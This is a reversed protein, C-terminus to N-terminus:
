KVKQRLSYLWYWFRRLPIDFSGPYEVPRGGFGHKFRTVGPWRVSDVGWLDYNKIGHEKLYKIISWHLLHPAMFQRFENDSAGHLYYGTDGNILVIAGAVPKDKYYALVLDTKLPEKLDLLKKYYEKEHSQFKDRQTTKRLLKWFAEADDSDRVDIGHSQALKINYRTKHHMEAMLQDEGKQLDLIVTRKPQLMKRAYRFKMGGAHLLEPVADNMPEFKIFVSGNAKALGRLYTHFERVENRFGTLINAMEIFPGHPVYLYNKRLPMDHRLINASFKGDDFRWGKRGLSRQFELWEPTGLFSKM